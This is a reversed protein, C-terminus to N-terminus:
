RTVVIKQSLLGHGDADTMELIYSASQFNSVDVNYFRNGKPLIEDSILKGSLDRITLNIDNKLSVNSKIEVFDVAPNPGVTIDYTVGDVSLTNVSMNFDIYEDIIVTNTSLPAKWEAIEVFATAYTESMGERGWIMSVEEFDDVIDFKLTAITVWGDKDTVMEGGKKNDLLEVAFNAFGLDKDFKLAGHGMAKVNEIVSSFQLGSYKQPSLQSKSAKKDLKLIDTPYFIRYNQGALVLRDTNDVRVDIDVYLSNDIKNLTNHSLRVDISSAATM